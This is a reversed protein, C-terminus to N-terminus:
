REPCDGGKTQVRMEQRGDIEMRESGRYFTLTRGTSERCGDVLRVPLGALTYREEDPFYTLTQGTAQRRDVAATVAGEGELRELANDKPALVLEIRDARLNGQVGELQAQEVFVARRKADDFQFEGARALSTGKAGADPRAAVPLTTVVNGTAGLTGTKANMTITEGSIVTASQPQWLRARGAYTGAGSVEDFVLKDSTVLVAERANLLTHGREGERVGPALEASVKGSASLRRPSLTVDITDATLRLREDAIGPQPGAARRLALTGRAIDYVAASSSASLRGDEFRFADAFEAREIGGAPTLSAKLTRARAVRGTTTKSADERYEVGNEFTMGTLGRGPDGAANLLPAAVTRAAAEASGPLAVRVSDRAHLRTVAGDPALSTDVFEATLQQAPTGDARGITVSAQRMLLAQELARGDSGYRLNIDAAQMAQLSGAGGSGTIRSGGRLEVAEPEDRDKLLFITAHAAEMVQGQRELRMGREFRMYREARSYGAAGATVQMGGTTGSAAVSIAARDSLWLRDLSRDYTFGVGSGTLRGRQFRVPGDGRLVGEEEAFTARPTTATLGDSTKLTVDGTVDYASLDKGVWAENGSVSFSRGGRDDVFAQFGTYRTRGDDYRVQEAFQVHIDRRAGKVQVADGGKIESAAAPDLREIAQIPAQPEREGILLWLVAAFAVAFLGLGVRVPKQWRAM